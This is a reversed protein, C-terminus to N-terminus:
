QRKQMKESKQKFYNYTAEQSRIPEAAKQNKYENSRKGNVIRARRNDHLQMQLMEFLEKQIEASKVPCVVEFRRDLNRVMWDASAIYYLPNGGNEFYFVRSHELYRDVISIVEINESVGKLGPILICIGRCIIKIKVGAQSAQYLKEVLQEDALSNMKLIISAGKGKEQNKIENDILKVFFNRMYYPSIILQRFDPLLYPMEFLKFMQSVERGISQNATFLSDDAYQQATSENFNGTSINSYYVENNEERRCISILKCHVKLGTITKIIKVGEEQLKGTWYINAEEDFRAQLEMFVTVDKGNRAANILANIVKSDSAARYLTAKISTVKPDISAERLLDIVHSFTQYPYHLMIDKKRLACFINKYVPLDPHRLSMIKEARLKTDGIYPFYMFDKFNHNRWESPILDDKSFKFKKQLKEFLRKPMKKDYIFRVPHGKKRQKLSEIMTEVFSKSVDNDMDMESDRTFKISYSEFTDYGFPLFIERLNFRIVDDLFMVNYAEDKESLIFFRSMKETPIQILAYNEEGLEKSNKLIIALYNSNDKLNGADKLSKLMIPFLNQHVETRFYRLVEQKQLPTLNQDDVFNIGVQKLEEVIVDYTSMYIQEQQDITKRIQKLVKMPDYDLLDVQERNQKNQKKLASLRRLTAVRVRFFEDRNNSYIGIFRLRELLPNSKDNAEQLLRANFRLWSIERDVLNKNL